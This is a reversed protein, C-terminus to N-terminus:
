SHWPVNRPVQHIDSSLPIPQVTNVHIPLLQMMTEKMQVEAFKLFSDIKVVIIGAQSKLLKSIHILIM